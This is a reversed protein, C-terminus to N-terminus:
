RLLRGPLAGTHQDECLTEVGGLFTHRYGKARQVLRRGGAPLDYVVEPKLLRLNDYDIVNVDARYGPALVGRDRLDYASATESTQKRILFELPLTPGRKRDRSWYTLLYTPSSGDCILGVHAGSDAIGLVTADDELMQRVVELSGASYNEIPCLLLQKGGDEMMWELALAFPDMGRRRATAAVSTAPDPEYNPEDGLLFTKELVQAMPRTALNDTREPPREEVLRRRLSADGVLRRYREAPTLDSMELWAPHTSFPHLSTELGMLVGPPRCGVQANASLGAARAARIGDLVERWLGPARDVQVLLCSLPRGSLKAAALLAELEGPGFDSNVEIVGKGARKMARAIGFLEAERASLSPIPRGDRARHKTTRSTTFGHAGAHLAEELLVGMREIEDETPQEAHDAGRDGM